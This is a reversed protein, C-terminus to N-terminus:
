APNQLPPGQRIESTKRSLRGNLTSLPARIHYAIQGDPTQYLTYVNKNGPRFDGITILRGNKVSWTIDSPMPTIVGDIEQFTLLRGDLSFHRLEKWDKLPDPGHRNIVHTQNTLRAELENAPIRIGKAKTVKILAL